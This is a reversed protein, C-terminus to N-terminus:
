APMPPRGVRGGTVTITTDPRMVIVEAATGVAKVFTEPDQEIPPFTDYHCPIVAKVGLWRTAIAAHEPGMTFRDGIPVAAIDPRMIEGIVHRMDSFLGSDGVIHFRTEGDDIIFGAPNGGNGLTAGDSPLGSSHLAPAMWITIDALRHYGGINMSTVGKRGSRELWQAIEYIALVPADLEQVCGTHDGHGHTILVLDAHIDAPRVATMGNETYPDVVITKGRTKITFFNHGHFTIDM